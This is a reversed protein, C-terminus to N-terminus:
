EQNPYRDRLSQCDRPFAAFQTTVPKVFRRLNFRLGFYRSM